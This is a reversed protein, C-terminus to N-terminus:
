NMTGKYNLNKTKEGLTGVTNRLSLYVPYTADIRTTNCIVEKKGRLSPTPIGARQHPCPPEGATVTLLAPDRHM